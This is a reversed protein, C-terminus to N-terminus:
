SSSPPMTLADGRFAQIPPAPGTSQGGSAESAGRPLHLIVATITVILLVFSATTPGYSSITASYHKGVFVPSYFNQLSGAGVIALWVRTGLDPRHRYTALTALLVAYVFSMTVYHYGWSRRGVLHLVAFTLAFALADTRPNGRSMHLVRGWLWIILISIVSYIRTVQSVSLKVLAPAQEEPPPLPHPLGYRYITAALGQNSEQADSSPNRIESLLPGVKWQHLLEVFRPPGFRLAPSVFLAVSAICFSGLTRWRCRIAYYGVFAVPLLKIVVAFALAFGAAVHRGNCSASISLTLMLCIILDIQGHLVHNLIWRYPLLAVLGYTWLPVPRDPPWCSRVSLVITALWAISSILAWLRVCTPYSLSTLPEFVCLFFPPYIYTFRHPAPAYPNGGGAALRSAEYFTQLDTPQQDAVLSARHMHLLSFAMAILGLVLCSTTWGKSPTGSTPSTQMQLALEFEVTDVTIRQWGCHHM